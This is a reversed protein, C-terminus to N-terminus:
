RSRLEQDIFEMVEAASASQIKEAVAQGNEREHANEDQQEGNLGALLARLRNAVRDRERNDGLGSLLTQVKDLEAHLPAVALSGGDGAKELLHRAVALPTPHDFVLTTALRVGTAATLRNRLEIATLSDFGIESFARQSEIARSSRHGLVVAVESRVLELVIDERESAPASALRLALSEPEDGIVQESTRPVLDRLVAPLLGAAAQGRLAGGNLRMPVMLAEEANCAADLLKLGEETALADVGLRRMRARADEGLADTMGSAQAWM